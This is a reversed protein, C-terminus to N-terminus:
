SSTSVVSQWNKPMHRGLEMQAVQLLVNFVFNFDSCGWDETEVIREIICKNCRQLDHPVSYSSRLVVTIFAINDTAFQQLEGM